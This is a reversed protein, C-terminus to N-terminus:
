SPWKRCRWGVSSGHRRRIQDFLYEPYSGRFTQVAEDPNGVLLLRTGAGRLAKLFTFGAFTLDQCDDVVLLRPLDDDGVMGVAKAGEVLLRSSDLRYEGSYMRSVATEYERRLAFALRWQVHLREVRPSWHRLASLATGERDESVGLEDMRALMDRLQMVFAANVGVGSDADGGEGDNGAVADALVGDWDDRAFYERLLSCTGCPDGARVHAVHVSCVSRLLADQEAGNLLRPLPEGSRSRMVTILRFAIASLTTVPRAQSTAGLERIVQDGIVDAIQRGSVTMIAGSEGFRRLGAMLADRALTSKGVCPAGVVLLAKGSEGELLAEVAKM